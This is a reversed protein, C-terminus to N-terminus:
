NFLAEFLRGILSKKTQTIPIAEKKWGFHVLKNAVKLANESSISDMIRLNLNKKQSFIDKFIKELGKFQQDHDIELFVNDSYNQTSNTFNPYELIVIPQSQSNAALALSMTLTSVISFILIQKKDTVQM